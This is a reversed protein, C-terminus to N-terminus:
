ELLKMHHAVCKVLLKDEEKICYKSEEVGPCELLIENMKREQKTGIKVLVEQLIRFQIILNVMMTVFLFDHSGCVFCVGYLNVIWQWVYMLEYLPSLQWNFPYYSALPLERIGLLMPPILLLSCCFFILVYFSMMLIEVRKALKNLPIRLNPRVIYTPWFDRYVIACM